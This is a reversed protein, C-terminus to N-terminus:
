RICAKLARNADNTFLGGIAEHSDSALQRTQTAQVKLGKKAAKEKTRECRREEGGLIKEFQLGGM